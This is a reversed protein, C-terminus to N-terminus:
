HLNHKPKFKFINKQEKIHKKKFDGEDNLQIGGITISNIGGKEKIHEKGILYYFLTKYDTDPIQRLDKKLHKWPCKIHSIFGTIFKDQNKLFKITM